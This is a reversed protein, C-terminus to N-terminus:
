FYYGYIVTKEPLQGEDRTPRSPVRSFKLASSLCETERKCATFPDVFTLPSSVFRSEEHVDIQSINGM